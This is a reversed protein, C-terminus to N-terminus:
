KKLSFVRERNLLFSFKEDILRWGSIVQFSLSPTFRFTRGLGGINRNGFELALDWVLDYTTDQAAGTKIRVFRTKKETGTITIKPDSITSDPHVDTKFDVYTFLGTEYIRQRSDILKKRSYLDGPKFLLERKIVKSSTYKLSDVQLGGFITLPGPMVFLEIDLNTSDELTPYQAYRVLAYPYGENSYTGEIASTVAKIRYPNFVDGTKLNKTLKKVVKQKHGLDEPLTVRNIYFQKGEEINIKVIASSDEAVEYDFSFVADLFGHTKYLYDVAANDLSQSNKRLRNKKKLRLKQWFGQEVTSIADKIKGADINANGSIDVRKIIPKKALWKTKMDGAWLNSSVMVMILISLLYRSRKM